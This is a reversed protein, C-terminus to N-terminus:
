AAPVPAAPPKPLHERCYEQGDRSVRFDLEPNTVETRHCVSCEHLTAVDPIKAAEFKRRRDAVQQRTRANRYIEPGFFLFYNAFVIALSALYDLGGSLAHFLLLAGSFWAIWKVKAPLIYMIFIVEDPYFQAFAFLLSTNLIAASFGQGFFFAAITVGIMGTLYYVNLKFPGLAQEVGNGIWWLFVLYIAANFWEPLFGGFQPIFIYTVLRWVQGHMIAQPSLLLLILIDPNFKSLVYVLANLAVVYRILGPIAYKGYRFELRDLFNM